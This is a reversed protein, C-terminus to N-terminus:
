ATIGRQNCCPAEYRETIQDANGSLLPNGDIVYGFSSEGKILEGNSFKSEAHVTESM